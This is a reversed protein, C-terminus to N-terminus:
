RIALMRWRIAEGAFQHFESPLDDPADRPAAMQGQAVVRVARRRLELCREAMPWGEPSLGTPPQGVVRPYAACNPGLWAFLPTGAPLQGEAQLRDLEDARVLRWHKGQPPGLFDAFDIGVEVGGDAQRKPLVIWAGDPLQAAAQQMTRFSQTESDQWARWGTPCLAWAATALAGILLAKGARWDSRHDGAALAIWALVPALLSQYRVSVSASGGIFIAVGVLMWLGLLRSALAFIRRAKAPESRWALALGAAVLAWLLLPTWDSSFWLLHQWPKFPSAEQLTAAALKSRNGPDGGVVLPLFGLPGVAAMGAWRPVGLQAILEPALLVALGVAMGPGFTHGTGVLWLGCAAMAFALKPRQRLHAVGLLVLAVALQGFGFSSESHGVRAAVPLLAMLLGAAAGFQWGRAAAAALAVVACAVAGALSAAWGMAAAGGGLAQTLAWHPAFWAPGYRILLQAHDLPNAATLLRADELAHNNCHLLALPLTQRVALGAVGAGLAALLSVRDSQWTARVLAAALGLALLWALAAELLRVRGLPVAARDASRVAAAPQSPPQGTLTQHWQGRDNAQLRDRVAAVAARMAPSATAEDAQLQFSPTCAALCPGAGRLTAQLAANEAGCALQFQIQRAGIGFGALKCGPAIAQGPQLPAVTQLVDTEHGPGITQASAAAPCILLLALWHRPKTPPFTM